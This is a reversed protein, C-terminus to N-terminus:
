EDRSMSSPRTSLASYSRRQSSNKKVAQCPPCLKGHGRSGPFTLVIRRCSTSRYGAIPHLEKSAGIISITPDDEPDFGPCYSLGPSSLLVFVDLIENLDNALIGENIVQDLAILKYKGDSERIWIVCFDFPVGTSPNTLCSRPAIKVWKANDIDTIVSIALQPFNQPVVSRCIDDLIDCPRSAGHKMLIASAANSTEPSVAPPKIWDHPDGSSPGPESEPETDERTESERRDSQARILVDAAALTDPSLM